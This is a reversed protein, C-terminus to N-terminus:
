SCLIIRSYNRLLLVWHCMVRDKPSAQFFCFQVLDSRHQLPLPFVVCVIKRLVAQLLQFGHLVAQLFHEKKVQLDVRRPFFHFECRPSVFDGVNHDTGHMHGQLRLIISFSDFMKKSCSFMAIRRYCGPLLPVNLSM